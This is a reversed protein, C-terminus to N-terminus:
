MVLNKKKRDGGGEGWKGFVMRGWGKEKEGPGAGLAVIRMRKTNSPKRGTDGGGQELLGGCLGDEKFNRKKCVGLLNKRHTEINKETGRGL